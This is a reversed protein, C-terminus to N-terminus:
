QGAKGQHATGGIVIGFSGLVREGREVHRIQRRMRELELRKVLPASRLASQQGHLAGDHHRDRFEVPGRSRHHEPAARAGGSDGAGAALVRARELRVVRRMVHMGAGLARQHQRGADGLQDGHAAGRAGLAFNGDDQEIERRIRAVGSGRGEQRHELGQMPRQIRHLARAVPHVEGGVHIGQALFDNGAVGLVVARDRIHVLSYRRAVVHATLLEQTLDFRLPTGSGAPLLAVACRDVHEALAEAVHEDAYLRSEAELAVRHTQQEFLTKRRRVCERREVAVQALVEARMRHQM